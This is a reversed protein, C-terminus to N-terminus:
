NYLIYVIPYQNIYATTLSLFEDEVFRHEELILQNEM